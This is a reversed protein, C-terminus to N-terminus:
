KAGAPPQAVRLSLARIQAMKALVNFYNENSRSKGNDWEYLSMGQVTFRRVTPAVGALPV